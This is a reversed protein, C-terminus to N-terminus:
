TQDFLDLSQPESGDEANSVQHQISLLETFPGGLKADKQV